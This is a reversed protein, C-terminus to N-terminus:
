LSHVTCQFISAAGVDSEVAVSADVDRSPPSLSERQTRTGNDVDCVVAALIVEIDLVVACDATMLRLAICGIVALYAVVQSCVGLPEALSDQLDVAVVECCPQRYSLGHLVAGEAGCQWYYDFM